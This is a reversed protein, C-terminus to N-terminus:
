IGHKGSKHFLSTMNTYETETTWFITRQHREHSTLKVVTSFIANMRAFFICGDDMRNDVFVIENWRSHAKKTAQAASYVYRHMLWNHSHQNQQQKTKDASRFLVSQQVSFLIHDRQISQSGTPCRRGSHVADCYFSLERRSPSLSSCLLHSVCVSSCSSFLSLM